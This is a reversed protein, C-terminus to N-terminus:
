RKWPVDGIFFLKSNKVEIKRIGKKFDDELSVVDNIHINLDKEKMKRDMVQTISQSNEIESHPILIEKPM